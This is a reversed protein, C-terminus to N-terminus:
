RGHCTAIQNHSRHLSLVVGGGDEAEARDDSDEAEAGDDDHPICSARCGTLHQPAWHGDHPASSALVRGLLSSPPFCLHLAGAGPDLPPHAVGAQPPLVVSVGCATCPPPGLRSLSPTVPLSPPATSSSLLHVCGGARAGYGGRRGALPRKIGEVVGQL